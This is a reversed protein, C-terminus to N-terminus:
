KLNQVKYRIQSILGQVEEFKNKLFGDQPLSDKVLILYGHLQNVFEEPNAESFMDNNQSVAIHDDTGYQGMYQEFYSDTFETLVDYLEGLALHLSFSKVKWHWMKAVNNALLLKSVFDTVQQNSM